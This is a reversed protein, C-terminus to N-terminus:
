LWLYEGVVLSFLLVWVWFQQHIFKAANSPSHSNFELTVGDGADEIRPTRPDKTMASFSPVNEGHDIKTNLEDVIHNMVATVHVAEQPDLRMNRMMMASPPQFHHLRPASHSVNQLQRPILPVTRPDLYDYCLTSYVDSIAAINDNWPPIRTNLTVTNVGTPLHQGAFEWYLRQVDFWQRKYWVYDVHGHHLWFMPDNAAGNLTTMHGGVAGHVDAHQGYEYTNAFQPFAFTPGALVFLVRPDLTGPNGTLQRTLCTNDVARWGAFPGDTVCGQGNGVYRPSNPTFIDYSLFPDFYPLGTLAKGTIELVETEFQYLFRRHWPLFQVG